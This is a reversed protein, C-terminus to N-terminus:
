YRKEIQIRNDFNQKVAIELEKLSELTFSYGYVIITNINLKREGILNLLQKTQNCNWNTDILYLLSNDIYHAKYGEFDIIEVKNDLKYGDAVLWTTFIVDKGKSFENDFEQVMNNAILKTFTPDFEEIKNITNVDVEKVYYHKYGYDIDANIEQKIKNASLEIRKRSIEDITNFGVKKAESDDKTVEPLQVMIYQREGEDEANLQMVAHATSASGAFFDLIIDNKSTTFNLFRKILNVSKPNNFIKCGFLNTLYKTWFRNDEYYTSKLLETATEIRKKIKPIIKEDIGWEVDGIKEADWFTSETWRYGNEPKSCIKHTRPHLIDFMYGGPKTNASNGPYYVGREDIYNYHTVGSLEQRNENIWKKLIKRIKKIDTEENKIELYKELIRNAKQSNIYWEDQEKIDKAYCLVYEHESSIQSKNNDTATQWIITGIYNSENFIEDCLLKLNAQENDDISIFIVGSISLLKKAIKLRPYMFTLWASHSSRGNITHLRKIEEDTFGLMEKLKEDSFEFKDNYAFDEKGTNYPPDIYIMDITNAYANQLHRLVELNDGTFFLNKSNKNEEKNNHENNPIIVTETMMGSQLRAYDKGIWKLQYGDRIEDKDHWDLKFDQNFEIREKLGICHNEKELSESM